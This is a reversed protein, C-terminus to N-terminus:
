GALAGGLVRWGARPPRPTASVAQKANAVNHVRPMLALSSASNAAAASPAAPAVTPPPTTSLRCSHVGIKKKRGEKKKAM